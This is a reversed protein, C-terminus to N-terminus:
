ALAPTDMSLTHTVAPRADVMPAADARMVLPINAPADALAPVDTAPADAMAADPAARSAADAATAVLPSEL